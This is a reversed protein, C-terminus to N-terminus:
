VVLEERKIRLFLLPILFLIGSVILVYNINVNALYGVIILLPIDSINKITNLTSTATARNFSPIRAQMQALFLPDRITGVILLLVCASFLIILNSTLLSAIIAFLGLLQPLLIFNMKGLKNQVKETNWFMLFLIGQFFTYVLGLYVTPMNVNKLLVQYVRWYVFAAQFIIIKNLAFKLLIKDSQILKLGERLLNSKQNQRKKIKPETIFSAVILSIITGVLDIAILILFQSPLLSKAIFSGVFPMIVKPLSASSFYKGAVRNAGNEDGVEKLSDYLIAHDAGMFFSYGAAGIIYTLVFYPFGTAFFLLFTSLSTLFIGAIILKKRGFKDALFSSPVDCLFSTVTWVLSLYIIQGLDLGRSLYFLQIVANLTKLEIFFRTGFMLRKNLKLGKIRQEM